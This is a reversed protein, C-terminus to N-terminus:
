WARNADHQCHCWSRGLGAPPLHGQRRGQALTNQWTLVQCFKRNFVQRATLCMILSFMM